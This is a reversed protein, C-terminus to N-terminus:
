VPDAPDEGAVVAAVRRRSATLVADLVALAVEPPLGRAEAEARWLGRLQEERAGDTAPLGAARKHRALADVAARRQGLQEVLARDVDDIAARLSELSELDPSTM